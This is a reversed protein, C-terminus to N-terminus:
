GSIISDQYCLTTDNKLRGYLKAKLTSCSINLVRAAEAASVYVENTLTNLVRRGNNEAIKQKSDQTHQKGYFPNKDGKMGAPPPNGKGEARLKKHSDSIKKISEDSFVRGLSGDGGSTMNALNEKGYLAILFIELECAEGWSLNDYMVEVTYGAKNVINHWHKNRNVKSHPRIESGIGIYFVKNTDLRRHRYVLINNEM